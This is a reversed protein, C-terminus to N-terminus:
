VRIQMHTSLIRHLIIKKELIKKKEFINKGFKEDLNIGRGEASRHVVVLVLVLVGVHVLVQQGRGVHGVGRGM